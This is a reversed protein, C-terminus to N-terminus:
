FIEIKGATGFHFWQNIFGSTLVNRVKTAPCGKPGLQVVQLAGTQFPGKRGRPLPVETIKQCNEDFHYFILLVPARFAPALFFM